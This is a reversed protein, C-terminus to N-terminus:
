KVRNINEKQINKTRKTTKTNVNITLFGVRSKGYCRQYMSVTCRRGRHILGQIQQQGIIELLQNM